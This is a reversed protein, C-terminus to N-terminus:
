KEVETFDIGMLQEANEINKKSIVTETTDQAFVVFQITVIILIFIIIKNM